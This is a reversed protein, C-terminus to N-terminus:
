LVSYKIGKFRSVDFYNNFMTDSITKNDIYIMNLFFFISLLLNEIVFIFRDKVGMMAICPPHINITWYNVMEQTLQIVNLQSNAAPWHM